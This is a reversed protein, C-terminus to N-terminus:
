AFCGVGATDGNRAELHCLVGLAHGPRQFLYIALELEDHFVAELVPQLRGLRVDLRCLALEGAQDRATINRSKALHCCRHLRLPIPPLDPPAHHALVHSNGQRPSHKVNAKQQPTARTFMNKDHPKFFCVNTYVEKRRKKKVKLNDIKKQKTKTKDM